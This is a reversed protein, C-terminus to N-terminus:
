SENRWGAWLNPLVFCSKSFKEKHINLVDLFVTLIMFIVPSSVKFPVGLGDGVNVGLSKIRIDLRGVSCKESIGSTGSFEEYVRSLGPVQVRVVGRRGEDGFATKVNFGM